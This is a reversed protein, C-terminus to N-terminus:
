GPVVRATLPADPTPRPGRLRKTGRRALRRARGALTVLSPMPDAWDLEPHVQPRLLSRLWAGTTLEGDARYGRLARLDDLPFWMALDDRFSDLAPLPEGVTRAYALRVLDIGAARVLENANTVRPNSEIIKLEGDRADRKFEINGIGQLGVGRFFRLGLDAVEEDWRTVHYTGLGFRTPYQRLKLKTFHTLAVGDKTLYTYYSSCEDTGEVVETVLMPIGEDLAPGTIAAVEDRDRVLAGKARPQFRRAYVHSHVPKV